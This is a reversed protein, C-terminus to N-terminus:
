LSAMALGGVGVAGSFGRPTARSLMKIPPLARSTAAQPPLGLLAATAWRPVVVVVLAALEWSPLRAM